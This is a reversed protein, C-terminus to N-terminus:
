CDLYKPLLTLLSLPLLWTEQGCAANVCHVQRVCCQMSTACRRYHHPTLLLCCLCALAGSSPLLSLPPKCGRQIEHPSFPKLGDNTQCGGPKTKHEIKGTCEHRPTLFGPGTRSSRQSPPVLDQPMSIRCFLYSSRGNLSSLAVQSLARPVRPALACGM